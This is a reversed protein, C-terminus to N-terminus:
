KGGAMTLKNTKGEESKLSGNAAFIHNSPQSPEKIAM